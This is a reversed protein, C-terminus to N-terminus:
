LKVFKHHANHKGNQIKFVYIGKPLQDVSVSQDMQTLNGELVVKGSLDIINYAFDINSELSINLLNNVPNPYLRFNAETIWENVSLPATTPLSFVKSKINGPDTTMTMLKNDLGPIISLNFFNASETFIVGETEDYVNATADGPTFSAKLFIIEFAPDTDFVNTTVFAGVMTHGSEIPLETQYWPTHDEHFVEINPTGLTTVIVMAIEDGVRYRAATQGSYVHEENLDLDYIPYNFSLLSEGSAQGFIKKEYGYHESISFSNANLNKLVDGNQSLLYGKDDSSFQNIVLRYGILVEINDDDNFMNKSIIYAGNYAIDNTTETPLDINMWPSGDENYIKLQHNNVDIYSFIYTGDELETANCGTQVPAEFVLDLTHFDYFKTTYDNTTVGNETYSYGGTARIFKLGGSGAVPVMQLAYNNNTLSALENGNHDVVKLMTTASTPNALDAKLNYYMYEMNDDANIEHRGYYVIGKGSPNDMIDPLQMADWESHDPNFFQIGQGDIDQAFSIYKEGIGDPLAARTLTRIEPYENELTIQAELNFGAVCLAAALCLRSTKM